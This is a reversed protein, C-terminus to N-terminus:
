GKPAFKKAEPSEPFGAILRQRANNAMQPQNLAAYAEIMVGLAQPVQPTRPFEQVVRNGRNAAAVYAKRVMYFQAIELQKQSMTNVIENMRVRADPAYRSKPFRRVLLDFDKYAAEMNSLDLQAPDARTFRDVFGHPRGMNALGKMYFAYDIDPSRPYLRIYRDAAALASDNDNNKYYAYIINLQGQQSYRGFPYLTDLAELDAVATEYNGKALQAEAHSFIQEGSRSGYLDATTTTKCAVLFLACLIISLLKTIQM